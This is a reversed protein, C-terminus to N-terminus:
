QDSRLAMITRHIGYILALLCLPKTYGAASSAAHPIGHCSCLGALTPQLFMKAIGIHLLGLIVAVAGAGAVLQQFDLLLVAQQTGAHRHDVQAGGGSAP